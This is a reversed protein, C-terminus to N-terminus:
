TADDPCAEKAATYIVPHVYEKLEYTEFDELPSLLSEAIESPDNTNCMVYLVTGEFITARAQLITSSAIAL